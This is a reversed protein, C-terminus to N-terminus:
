PPSRMARDAGPGRPGPGLRPRRDDPGRGVLPLALLGAALAIAATLFSTVAYAHVVDNTGHPSGLVAIFVAVGVALGLQRLMNVVASGTAFSHAPLSASGTALITPLALGTAILAGPGFRPVLRGSLIAFVPVM